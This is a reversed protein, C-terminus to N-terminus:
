GGAVVRALGGSVARPAIQPGSAAWLGRFAWIAEWQTELIACSRHRAASPSGDPPWDYMCASKTIPLGQGLRPRAISRSSSYLALGAIQVRKQISRTASRATQSVAAQEPNAMIISAALVVGARDRGWGVVLPGSGARERAPAGIRARWRGRVSGRGYSLASSSASSSRASAFCSSAGTPAGAFSRRFPWTSPSRSGKGSPTGGPKGAGGAARMAGAAPAIAAAM